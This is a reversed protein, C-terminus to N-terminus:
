PSGPPPVIPPLAPNEGPAFGHTLIGFCIDHECNTAEDIQESWREFGPLTHHNYYYRYAVALPEDRKWPTDSDVIIAKIAREISGRGPRLHTSKIERNAAVYTFNPIDMNDINDYCSSDGRRLMLECQQINNGLHLQPYGQHEGNYMPINCFEERLAEEPIIGTEAIQSKIPSWQSSQQEGTLMDCSYESYAVKYGNMRDLALQNAYAYAEAPSLTVDEGNNVQWPNRHILVVEPRDWLYDAIYASTTTAAAGWNNNLRIASYSVIYYPNKVLWNQFLSKCDGRGLTTDNYLTSIPGICTQGKWYDEILDASAILEPTGWAFTLQCKDEEISVTKVEAIIQQLITKVEEAYHTEGTLHYALAKAYLIPAGEQNDIWAPDDSNDCSEYPDLQYDWAKNAWELVTKVANRYPQMGQNAKQEIIMLEQPTTLYGRSQDSFVFVQNYILPLYVRSEVGNGAEIQDPNPVNESDKVLPFFNSILMALLPLLSFRM